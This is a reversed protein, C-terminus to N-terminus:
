KWNAKPSSKVRKMWNRHCLLTINQFRQILVIKTMVMQLLIVKKYVMKEAIKLIEPDKKPNEFSPHLVMQVIRFGEEVFHNAQIQNNKYFWPQFKALKLSKISIM